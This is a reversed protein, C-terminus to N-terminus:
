FEKPIYVARASKHLSDYDVLSSPWHTYRWDGNSDKRATVGNAPHGITVVTGVPAEDLTM